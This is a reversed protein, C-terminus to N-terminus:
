TKKTITKKTKELKKEEKKEISKQPEEPVSLKELPTRILNVQVMEASDSKRNGLKVQNFNGYNSSLTPLIEELIKKVILKNPIQASIRQKALTPNRKALSVLKEFTRILLKAKGKTTIIKENIVLSNILSKSLIQRQKSTRSFKKSRM